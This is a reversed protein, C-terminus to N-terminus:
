KIKLEVLSIMDAINKLSELEAISFTVNFQKEMAVVLNMQMLSDWEDIDHASTQEKFSLSDDDFTEDFIKFIEEKVVM